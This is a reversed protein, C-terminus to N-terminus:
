CTNSLFYLFPLGVISNTPISVPASILDTLGLPFWGGKNFPSISFSFNWYKPWRIHIASENSFVRISPFSSPLLFLPCCLVCCDSPIVPRVDLPHKFFSQSITFFLSAWLAATWPTAFLWVHSLLEVVATYFLITNRWSVLLLVVMHGLLEGLFIDSSLSFAKNYFLDVHVGVKM